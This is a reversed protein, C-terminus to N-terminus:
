LGGKQFTTFNGKAWNPGGSQSLKAPNPSINLTTKSYDGCQAYFVMTSAKERIMAKKGYEAWIEMGYFSVKVTTIKVGNFTYGVDSSVKPTGGVIVYEHGGQREERGVDLLQNKAIKQESILNKSLLDNILGSYQCETIVIKM